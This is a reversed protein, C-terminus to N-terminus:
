CEIANGDWKYLGGVSSMRPTLLSSLTFARYTHANSTLVERHEKSNLHWFYQVESNFAAECAGCTDQFPHRNDRQTM